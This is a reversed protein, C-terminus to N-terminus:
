YTEIINLKEGNALEIYLMKDDSDSLGYKVQKIESYSEVKESFKDLIYLKNNKGVLYLREIGNKIELASYDIVIKENSNKDYIYKDDLSLTGSYHITLSKLESDSPISCYCNSSYYADDLRIYEESLSNPQYAITYVDSSTKITLDSTSHCDIYSHKIGIDLAKEKIKYKDTINIVNKIDEIHYVVGNEDLVYFSNNINIMGEEFSNPLAIDIIKKGKLVNPTCEDNLYGNEDIKCKISTVSSDSDVQVEFLEHLDAQEIKVSALDIIFVENENINEEENNINEEQNNIEEDKEEYKNIHKMGYKYGVFVGTGIVLIIAFIIILKIINPKKELSKEEM